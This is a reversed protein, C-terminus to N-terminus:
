ILSKRLIYDSNTGKWHAYFGGSLKPIVTEIM